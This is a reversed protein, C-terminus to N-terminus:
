TTADDSSTCKFGSNRAQYYGWNGESSVAGSTADYECLKLSSDTHFHFTDSNWFSVSVGVGVHDRINIYEVKGCTGEGSYMWVAPSLEVLWSYRNNSSDGIVVWWGEERKQPLFPAIVPGVVEDERELSVEVIVM